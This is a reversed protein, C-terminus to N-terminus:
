TQATGEIHREQDIIAHKLIEMEGIMTRINEGNRLSYGHSVFGGQWVSVSIIGTLEGTKAYELLNELHSILSARPQRINIETILAEGTRKQQM